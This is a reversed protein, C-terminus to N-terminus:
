EDNNKLHDELWGIMNLTFNNPLDIGFLSKIQHQMPTKEDFTKSFSKVIPYGDIRSYGIFQVINLGDEVLFLPISKSGNIFSYIDKKATQGPLLKEFKYVWEDLQPKINKLYEKEDDFTLKFIDKPKKPVEKKVEKKDSNKVTELYNELITNRLNTEYNSDIKFIKHSTRNLQNNKITIEKFTCFIKKTDEQFNSGVHRYVPLNEISHYGLFKFEDLVLLKESIITTYEFEISKELEQLKKKFLFISKDELDSTEILSGLKALHEKIEYLNEM